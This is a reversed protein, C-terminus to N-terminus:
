TPSSSSVRAPSGTVSRLESSFASSFCLAPSVTSTPIL